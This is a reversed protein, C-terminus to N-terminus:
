LRPQCGQRNPSQTAKGYAELLRAVVPEPRYVAVRALGNIRQRARLMEDNQFNTMARAISDSDTPDFYAGAEGASECVAPIDSVLAPCGCAMAEIVPIGGGEYLSPFILATAASYLARLEEITAHPFFRVDDQLEYERVIKKVAAEVGHDDGRLILPWPRIGNGKMSRYAALLAMHNKHPYFHAVYLWFQDPLAYKARLNAIESSSAPTYNWGIIAPIVAMHDPQASLNYQLAKATADSMPLLMRAYRVTQRMMFRLFWRKSRSFQALNLFPQLDYITVVAPVSNFIAQTNAFWHMCDLQYKCALVQLSTNEYLVRGQRSAPNIGIFVSRFKSKAPVLCRSSNTVFAIYTNTNDCDGLAAVLSAIYNWGGGIGPQAHLLNLGIRM